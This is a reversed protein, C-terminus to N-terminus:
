SSRAAFHRLPETWHRRVIANFAANCMTLQLCQKQTLSANIVKM